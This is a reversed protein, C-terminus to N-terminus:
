LISDYINELATNLVTSSYREKMDTRAALSMKASLESNKLLTKIYEAMLRHDREPTIFGTEGTRIIEPLGGHCSGIVPIGCSLAEKAVILGSDRDFNPAVVSPALLIRSNKIKELVEKPTLFGTFNVYRSIGNEKVSKELNKRLQGDGIIELRCDIGSKIVDSVARIGYEFGKKYVLRGVMIIVPPDKKFSESPTFLDTDVGMHHLRIKGRPCGAEELLECLEKGACLFLAAHRFLERRGASYLWNGPFYQEASLLTSVDHGHVSVILPLNYKKSYPLAYVGNHGFHAHILSFDSKKFSKHFNHSYATLLYFLKKPNNRSDSQSVSIFEHDPFVESNLRNNCFVVPTYKKHAKMQTHIFTESLPLFNNRFVAIKRNETM